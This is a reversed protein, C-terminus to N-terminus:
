HISHSPLSVMHNGLGTWLLALKRRPRGVPEVNAKSSALWGRTLGSSHSQWGRAPRWRGASVDGWDQYLGRPWPLLGERRQVPRWSVEARAFMPKPTCIRPETSTPTHRKLFVLESSMLAILFAFQFISYNRLFPLLSHNRTLMPAGPKDNWWHSQQTSNTWRKWDSTNNCMLISKRPLLSGLINRRRTRRRHYIKKWM